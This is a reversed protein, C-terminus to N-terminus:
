RDIDACRRSRDLSRCTSTDVQNALDEIRGATDRQIRRLQSDYLTFTEKNIVRRVNWVYVELDLYYKQRLEIGVIKEM